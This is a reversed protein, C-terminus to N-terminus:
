TNARAEMRGEKHRPHEHTHIRARTHNATKRDYVRLSAVTRPGRYGLVPVPGRRLTTHYTNRAAHLLLGSSLAHLLLGSTRAHTGTDADAM